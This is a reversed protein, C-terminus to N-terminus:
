TVLALLRVCRRAAEVVHRDDSNSGVVLLTLIARGFPDQKGNTMRDYVQRICAPPILDGFNQIWISLEHDQLDSNIM